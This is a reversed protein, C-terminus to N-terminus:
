ALHVTGEASCRPHGHALVLHWEGIEIVQGILITIPPEAM